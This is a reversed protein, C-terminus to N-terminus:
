SPIRRILNELYGTMENPQVVAVRILEDFRRSFMRIHETSNLVLYSQGIFVVVRLPGFITFAATYVERGDFLFWRFRPYLEDVLSIMHELQRVRVERSLDRWIGEGLAFSEIDQISQCSEMESEARRQQVLLVHTDRISQDTRGIGYRRFEYGAVEENKLLDPLTAPIYRVKYGSAERHWELLKQNASSESFDEFELPGRMLDADVVGQNTLGLLWDISVQYQEAIAAITDARPLRLNNPSLLQSLTSRDVGISAAFRSHNLGSGAIVESIRERFIEVRQAYKM